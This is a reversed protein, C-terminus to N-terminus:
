AMPIGGSKFICKSLVDVGIAITEVFRVSISLEWGMYNICGIPYLNEMGDWLYTKPITSPHM